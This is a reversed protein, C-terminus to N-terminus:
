EAAVGLAPVGLARAVAGFFQARRNQEAILAAITANDAAIKAQWEELSVDAKNRLKPEGLGGFDVSGGADVVFEFEDDSVADNWGVLFRATILYGEGNFAIDQVEAFGGHPGFDGGVRHVITAAKLLEIPISVSM